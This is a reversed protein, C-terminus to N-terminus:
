ASAPSASWGSRRACTPFGRWTCWSTRSALGSSCGPGLEVRPGGAGAAHAVLVLVAFLFLNEIMNKAARDARATLPSPEPVEDRNSTAIRLGAPKWSGTRLTSATMVMIWTLLISYALLRLDPSM